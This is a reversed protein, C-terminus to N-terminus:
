KIEESAKALKNGLTQILDTKRSQFKNKNNTELHRKFSYIPGWIRSSVILSFIFSILTSILMVSSALVLYIEINTKSVELYKLYSVSTILLALLSFSVILVIVTSFYIQEKPQTLLRKRNNSQHWIQDTNKFLGYSFLLFGIWQILDAMNSYVNPILHIFDRVGELFIKDIFNGLVGSVLMWLGFQVQKQNSFYLYDIIFFVILVLSLCIGTFLYKVEPPASQFSGFLFYHNFHKHIFYSDPQEFFYTKSLQDLLVLSIVMIFIKFFHKM